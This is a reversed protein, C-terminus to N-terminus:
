TRFGTRRQAFSSKRAVVFPAVSLSKSKMYPAFMLTLFMPFGLFQEGNLLACVIVVGSLTVLISGTERWTSYAFFGIFIFLGVLGFKVAFGTLGNGQVAVLEAVEADNSLRTEPTASWGLVPKDVIWKLDYVLNGIRNIRSADDQAFSSAIQVNIKEGLFSVQSYLVLIVSVLGFFLLPFAVLKANKHKILSSSSVYLVLLVLFALYGTTSQTTLLTAIILLGQRSIVAKYQGDRILFFLALVLYGAFAGPEWFMGCNRSRQDPIHFNHIGIHIVDANPLSIKMPSLIGALDIGFQVPIYFVLSLCALAYMVSVYKRSFEPILKVALLAICLKIMFGLSAMIVMSGFSLVHLLILVFFLAFILVDQRSLKLPKAMWLIMFIMLTGIYIIEKGLVNLAPNGSIAVVLFTLFYYFSNITM